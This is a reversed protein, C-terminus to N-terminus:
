PVLRVRVAGERFTERITVGHEMLRAIVTPHPHGYNNRGYSIVAKLPRSATLLKDSTSFRSGHHPVMLIAVDPFAIEQEVAASLDGLLLAWPQERYYLALVVSNDNEEAYARRPPNLVDLRAKGLRLSEGRRVETVPVRNREAAAMLEDFVRKGPTPIGIILQDVPVQNLVSALGEAHDASSHTAIVLELRTVGLARLAPVVTHKGVDFDSFPTGGGDVLIEVRGPLRILVSDGQGVDLFVIEPLRPDTATVAMSGLIAAMIVLAGRWPRLKRWAVLAAAACGIFYLAYGIPEVEGWVLNPWRAAIDAWSLLLGAIAGTLGNVLQALSLSVSGLLAAMFGLPVLLTALPIALVNVLPSFLPVSGFSSAVLPLSLVQASASVIAGGLLLTRWHWWKLRRTDEVLRTMVPTAFTLIGIVALYSLQFSLDFLWSPNYLLTLLAALGLAPWPALRGGGLWLLLIVAGTMAAARVVSPTPGVLWVFGVLLALLAPYRWLGLPRLLLGLAGMLIGVHLGSLALIHALGSAAFVERLEGLNERIGLTMALQLGAARENLGAAVGQALRTKFDPRAASFDSVERVLLQARVGRRALYGRYDFDGPNRKGSPVRLDGVVTARGPPVAGRPSLVVRVGAPDDLTLYRGDSVGTLTLRQEYRGALPDPQNAWLEYRLYGLPILLTSVAILRGWSPQRYLILLALGLFSMWWPAGLGALAVGLALCGAAPLSWPVFVAPEEAKPVLHSRTASV